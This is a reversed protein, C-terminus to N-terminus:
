CHWIAPGDRGPKATPPGAATGVVTNGDPSIGTPNIGTYYDIGPLEDFVGNRFIYAHRIGGAFDGNPAVALGEDNDTFVDVAGTRLNWRAGVLGNSNKRDGVWGVAWDGNADFVKGGHRGAPVKLAHGTGSADMASAPWEMEDRGTLMIRSWRLRKEDPFRHVLMRHVYGDLNHSASAQGWHRYLAVLTSQAIDDAQHRDGCLLYAAQRLRPLRARVCEVYDGEADARM